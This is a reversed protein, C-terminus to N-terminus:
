PNDDHGVRARIVSGLHGSLRQARETLHQFDAGTGTLGCMSDACCGDDLMKAVYGAVRQQQRAGIRRFQRVIPDIRLQLARSGRRRQFGTM